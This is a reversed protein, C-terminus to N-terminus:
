AWLTQYYKGFLRLGNSIREQHKRRGEWDCEGEVKWRIPIIEKGEDEPYESLDMEPHTIWYQQEWDDDCLQEFAWIMEDLVWDYRTHVDCKLKQKSTDNDYYFDFTLQADYDETETYRMEEPVDELDIYGSGRKTEKLQKLMPLIIPSLTSDMSWTDYPHIKIKMKRKKKSEVWNCLKYLWTIKKQDKSFGHALFDGFKHVWDPNRKFGYEDPVKKVWFCLLESIQYPGVWSRYPGINVYM